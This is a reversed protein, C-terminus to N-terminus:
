GARPDGGNARGAEGAQRIRFASVALITATLIAGLATFGVVAWLLLWDPELAVGVLSGGFLITGTVGVIQARRLCALAEARPCAESVAEVERPVAPETSAM